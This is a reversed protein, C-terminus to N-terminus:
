AAEGKNDRDDWEILEKARREMAKICHKKFQPFSFSGGNTHLGVHQRVVENTLSNDGTKMNYVLKGYISEYMRLRLLVEDINKDTWHDIGLNMTLNILTSTVTKMEADDGEGTFCVTKYDKINGIDWHLPM